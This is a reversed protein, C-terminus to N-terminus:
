QIKNGSKNPDNNAGAVAWIKKELMTDELM